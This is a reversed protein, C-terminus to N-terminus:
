QNKFKQRFESPSVGFQEKFCKRFYKIDYFGIDDSIETIYKNSNKLLQAAIKLRISRIFVNTSMGTLAKIKRYLTSPSMNMKQALYETSFEPKIMSREVLEIADELIKAETHTIEVESPELRVKKSFYKHLRERNKLSSAIEAKLVDPNFPKAIYSEAGATVGEIKSQDTDKATLMIVPIHSTEPNQKILQCMECGDTVPMMVDTIVLDPHNRQCSIYGDAGNIATLVDYDESLLEFIYNRVEDQDEVVLIKFQDQGKKGAPKVKTKTLSSQAIPDEKVIVELNSSIQEESYHEKGAKMQIKFVTEELPVSKVSIEGGHLEVIRKALSLGIGSGGFARNKSSDVQYFRDFIKDIDTQSIGKGNDKVEIVLNKEECNLLLTVVGPSGAYKFANSLLNNIVIEFKEYDFWANLQTVESKYSFEINNIEALNEFSKVERRLFVVMDNKSVSIKMKGTEAKRFDLLQTVLNLLRQTNEAIVQLRGKAKEAFTENKLLEQVPGMILTLPTRFEHSINTFFRLKVESMEKEQEVHLSEMELQHALRSQRLAVWRILGVLGFTITIYIVLAWWTRWPAPRVEIILSAPTENWVNHNNSGKVEFIYTGARLNNFFVTRQNGINKWSDDHNVLRYAYNNREPADYGLAAFTIAIEKERHTLVLNDSFTIEKNLIIRNNCTEGPKIVKNNINLDTIAMKPIFPNDYISDPFFYNYGNVGGFFMEGNESKFSCGESFSKGQLGDRENYNRFLGDTPSFRSIGQNTSIWLTNGKDSLLAHIYDDSLGDEIYFNKLHFSQSNTVTLQTLGSPTGVFFTSDNFQNWCLIIQSPLQEKGEIKIEQFTKKQFDYFYIGNYTGIWFRSNKDKRIFTIRENRLVPHTQPNFNKIELQNGNNCVIDFFGLQQTGVLFENDSKFISTVKKIFGLNDILNTRVLKYGTQMKHLKQIGFNSGVWIQNKDDEFLCQITYKEFEIDENDKMIAPIFDRRNDSYYLGGGKTGIWLQGNKAQLLSWIHHNGLGSGKHGNLSIGQFAPRNSIRCIGGGDTGVWVDGSPAKFLKLIIDFDTNLEGIQNPKISISQFKKSKPDFKFLGGGWTGMFVKGYDDLLLSYSNESYIEMISEEREVKYSIYSRNSPDYEVLGKGWAAIWIKNRVEDFILDTVDFNENNFNHHTIKNKVCNYCYLGRDTGIWVTEDPGEKIVSIKRNKFRYWVSDKKQDWITLGNSWSGFFFLSDSSQYISLIRNDSLRVHSSDSNNYHSFKNLVPDYVDIGGSKTGIWIKDNADEYICEISPNSLGQPNNGRSKFHIFNYGDYRNLGGRTAFWMFGKADQIIDTIENQSLGDEVSLYSM